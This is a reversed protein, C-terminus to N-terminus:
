MKTYKYKKYDGHTSDIDICGDITCTCEDMNVTICVTNLSTGSNPNKSWKGNHRRCLSSATSSITSLPHICYRFWYAKQNLLLSKTCQSTWRTPVDGRLGALIIGILITHNRRCRGPQTTTLWRQDNPKKVTVTVPNEKYRALEQTITPVSGSMSALPVVEQSLELHNTYFSTYTHLRRRWTTPAPPCRPIPFEREDTRDTGCTGAKM